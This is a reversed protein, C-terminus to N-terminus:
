RGFGCSFVAGRSTLVNATSNEWGVEGLRATTRGSYPRIIFNRYSLQLRLILLVMGFTIMRVTWGLGGPYSPLCSLMLRILPPWEVAQCPLEAGRARFRVVDVFAAFSRADLDADWAM